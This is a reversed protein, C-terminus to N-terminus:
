PQGWLFILDVYAGTLPRANYIFRWYNNAPASRMGASGSEQSFATVAPCGVPAANGKRLHWVGSIPGAWRGCIFSRHGCPFFCFLVNRSGCKRAAKEQPPLYLLYARRGSKTGASMGPRGKLSQTGYSRCSRPLLIICSLDDQEM